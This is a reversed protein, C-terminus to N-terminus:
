PNGGIEELLQKASVTKMKFTKEKGERLVTYEVEQGITLQPLSNLEGLNKVRLGDRAVVVDESQMGALAAPTGNYVRIILSKAPNDKLNVDFGVAARKEIEIYDEGFLLKFFTERDKVGLGKILLEILDGQTVGYEKLSSIANKLQKRLIDINEKITNWIASAKLREYEIGQTCAMDIVQMHPANIPIEPSIQDLRSVKIEPSKLQMTHFKILGDEAEIAFEKSSITILLRFYSKWTTYPITVSGWQLSQCDMEDKFGQGTVSFRESATLTVGSNEPIKSLKAIKLTKKHKLLQTKKIIIKM